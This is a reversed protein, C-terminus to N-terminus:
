ESIELFKVLKERFCEQKKFFDKVANSLNKLKEKCKLYGEKQQHTIDVSTNLLSGYESLECEKFRKVLRIDELSTKRKMSRSQRNLSNFIMTQHYIEQSFQDRLTYDAKSAAQDSFSLIACLFRNKFQFMECTLNELYVKFDM